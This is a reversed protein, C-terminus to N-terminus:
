FIWVISVCDLRPERAAIVHFVAESWGSRPTASAARELDLDDHRGEGKGGRGVRREEGGRGEICGPISVNVHLFACNAFEFCSVFLSDRMTSHVVQQSVCLCMKTM